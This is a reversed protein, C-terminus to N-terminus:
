MYKRTGQLSIPAYGRSGWLHHWGFIHWSLPHALFSGLCWCTSFAFSVYLKNNKQLNEWSVPLYFAVNATAAGDFFCAGCSSHFEYLKNLSCCLSVSNSEHTPDGTMRKQGTKHDGLQIKNSGSTSKNFPLSCIYLIYIFGYLWYRFHKHM